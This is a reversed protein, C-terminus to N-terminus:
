VFAVMRNAVATYDIAADLKDTAAATKVDCVLEITVLLTQRVCREWENVGILTEIRLEEIIVKDM